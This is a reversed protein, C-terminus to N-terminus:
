FGYDLVKTNIRTNITTPSMITIGGEIDDRLTTVITTINYKNQVYKAIKNANSIDGRQHSNLM